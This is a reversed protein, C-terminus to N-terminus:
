LPKRARFPYGFTGFRRAKDEGNTGVYTDVMPGFEVDVLGVGEIM